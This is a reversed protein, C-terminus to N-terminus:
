RALRVPVSRTIDNRHAKAVAVPVQERFQISMRPEAHRLKPVGHLFTEQCSGGMVLLDGWGLEFSLRLPGKIARLSFRRPAGLSVIAVVTDRRLPGLKDGHPAVSDNGNRYYALSISTLSVRYRRSLVSAAERLLAQAFGEQPLPAVLRPVDVERDYMHRRQHQWAATARLEDFLAQHGLLWQPAHELWASESLVRRRAGVFSADFEPRNSGFLTCQM